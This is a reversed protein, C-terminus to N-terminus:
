LGVRAFATTVVYRATSLDDVSLARIELMNLLSDPAAAAYM